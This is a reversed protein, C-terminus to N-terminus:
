DNTTFRQEIDKDFGSGGLKGDQGLSVVRGYGLAPDFPFYVLPHNWSDNTAAPVLLMLHDPNGSPFFNTFGAPWYGYRKHFETSGFAVQALIGRTQGSPTKGTSALRPLIWFWAFIAFLILLMMVRFWSFARMDQM